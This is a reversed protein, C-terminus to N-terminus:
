SFARARRAHRAAPNGILLGGGVLLVLGFMTAAGIGFAGWSFRDSITSPRAVAAPPTQAEVGFKENLAESRLMLARYEPATMGARVTVGLGYQRDLAEGRLTLARYEARSMGAPRSSTAQAAAALITLAGITLAAVVAAAAFIKNMENGGGEREEHEVM